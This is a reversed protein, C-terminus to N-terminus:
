GTLWLVVPATNANNKAEAFWFFLERGHQEDVTIKGAFLGKPPTHLGPLHHVRFREGPFAVVFEIVIFLLLLLNLM